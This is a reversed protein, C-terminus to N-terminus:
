LAQYIRDVTEGHTDIFAQLIIPNKLLPTTSGELERQASADHLTTKRPKLPSVPSSDPQAKKTKHLHRSAKIKTKKPIEQTPKEIEVSQERQPVEPLWYELTQFFTQPDIPKSVVDNMGSRLCNQRTSGTADATLAIIPLDAYEPMDHIAMGAELGDMRPMNLDMLILEYRKTQVMEVAELGDEASEVTLGALTMLEEAVLRNFPNDDVLLIREGAFRRPLVKGDESISMAKGGEEDPVSHLPLVVQFISGQYLKCEAQISGGMVEALQRAISLGLGTGGRRLSTGAVQQFPTFLMELKDERIGIGTDSVRFLLWEENDRYLEVSIKVRGSETFKIANSVLNILIQGV